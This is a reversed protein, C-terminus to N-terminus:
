AATSQQPSSGYIYVHNDGLIVERRSPRISVDKKEMFPIGALSETDLNEVVLGEFFLEHSDRTFTLRTEGIVTIPWSGDAQHAFQSSGSIRAGLRTASSARIMNGTAGSDITLRVSTHGHFTDLYPSQRVQMHNTAVSPVPEEPEICDIYM